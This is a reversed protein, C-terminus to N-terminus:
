REGIARDFAARLRPGVESLEKLTATSFSLRIHSTDDAERGFFFAAGLPFFIGEEIAERAVDQAQPGVCEVWLFFGGEPKRFRIYQACHDRLSKCLTECKEAYLPRVKELHTNLMGSAVYKALAMQLLPSNGMDFRVQALAEIYDPRGQVWGIRLGTAIPKSFTGVKFIGQGEALTYLSVPPQSGFYIDSYAADEVILAHHEACLSVLNSRREPSMTVGTPNHFDSITYVLKVRKGSKETRRIVEAVRDVMIGQDDLPVPAIEAMHGKITRLSGSFTPSEVIVVDGSEVFADCITDIGGASGNDILFNEPVLPIGEIRSQREALATRLGDFGHVGGYRLSEDPHTTLVHGIAKLLDDVPLTAPDPVGGALVIPNAVSTTSIRSLGADTPSGAGLSRAGKTLLIRLDIEQWTKTKEVDKVKPLDVM